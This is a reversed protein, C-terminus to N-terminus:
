HKFSNMVYYQNEWRELSYLQLDLSIRLIHAFQRVDPEQIRLVLDLGENGGCGSSTRALPVEDRLTRCNSNEGIPLYIRECQIVNRLEGGHLVIAESAVCPIEPEV